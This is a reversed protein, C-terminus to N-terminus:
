WGFIYQTLEGDSAMGVSGTESLCVEACCLIISRGRFGFPLRPFLLCM